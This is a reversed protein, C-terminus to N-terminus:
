KMMMKPLYMIIEPVLIVIVIAVIYLVVFPAAGIIIETLTIYGEGIGKMVFLNFGVPPTIAATELIMVSIVGFYIPNFGFKMALPYLVPMTTLIIPTPDMFFGLIFLTTLIMILVTYKSVGLSVVFDTLGAAVGGRVTAHGFALAGLFILIIFAGLRVGEFTAKIIDPLTLRRYAVGLLIAAVAGISAAETPTAIGFYITLLVSLIVLILPLINFTAQWRTLNGLAELPIPPALRPNIQCRIIIYFIFIAATMLGPFIGGAFMHGISQETIICYMIMPVSPPILIGLAGGAALAGVALKKEYGYKKLSPMAVLGVAAATAVSTGSIASFIACTVIGVTNLSGPVKRLWIGLSRFLDDNFRARQAYLAMMIFLPVCTLTFSNLHHFFYGPLDFLLETEKSLMFLSALSTILLTFGVPIGLMMLVLLSGFMMIGIIYWEMM